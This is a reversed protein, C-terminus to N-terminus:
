QTANKGYGLYQDMVAKAIPAAVGSGSEGNEVIVAVAIQPNDFPAFAIFLAHDRQREELELEDYKVGQAVTVVQATGSKGAMTYAAGTGVARATGRPGQMVDHMAALVEDWYEVNSIAVEEPPERELLTHEGSLPDEIAAVLHPRQHSGRTALTGAAVALQLPTTLMFGQGISAIVTEGHYWRQNDRDRFNQRKWERSPVVGAREGLIDVGSASGLGFRTLYEHMNDIGLVGSIEFFYVDCSQEIADHLNVRGHGQPKWDRYRHEDGPLQFYGICVSKRTLNTAGTELAALALMPKITSGPPYTGRIVRDFLPLDLDNQLENYQQTSMGVAFLNPDFSPSSVMALIDGSNPDLAVVAGRRGELANYAARQLDLDLSLHVNFGPTANQDVPLSDLLETTNAVVHRGRANTILHRFGANGHLDNEFSFEVGTKGTHSSGAYRAPDLRQVDNTDLPGVYGVAHAFLDDYPYHRVLRPQFDVGPFRPRQIAFDAIEQETMRFKLTVPKFRQSSGSLAKFRPIEAAQILNIAALRNLTDDIDDVQEPILELQYAPMNEAIVRGKRDFILGRIPPVAQIRVRNGQSKEAFLEHDFVQLQVLRAIVVSLLFFSVFSALVVRGIFMRRESHHDKIPSLLSM